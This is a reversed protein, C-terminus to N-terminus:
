QEIELEAAIATAHTRFSNDIRKLYDCMALYMAGESGGFMMTPTLDASLGREAITQVFGRVAQIAAHHRSLESVLWPVDSRAAAIFEGDAITFQMVETRQHHVYDTADDPNCVDGSKDGLGWQDHVPTVIAYAFESGNEGHQCGGYCDCGDTVFGWPGKTAADMRAQIAALREEFAATM